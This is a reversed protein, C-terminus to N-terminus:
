DQSGPLAQSAESLGAPPALHEGRLPLVLARGSVGSWPTGVGGQDGHLSYGGRM